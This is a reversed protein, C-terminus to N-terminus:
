SVKDVVSIVFLAFNKIGQRFLERHVNKPPNIIADEVIGKIAKRFTHNGGTKVAIGILKSQCDSSSLVEIIDIINRM